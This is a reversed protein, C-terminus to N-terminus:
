NILQQPQVTREAGEIIALVNRVVMLRRIGNGQNHALGKNLPCHYGDRIEDLVGCHFFNSVSLQCIGSIGILSPLAHSQRIDIYSPM